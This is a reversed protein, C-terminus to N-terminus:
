GTPGVRDPQPRYWGINRNTGSSTRKNVVREILGLEVLRDLARRLAVRRSRTSADGALQSVILSWRLEKGDADSLLQLADRQWCGPGRSM